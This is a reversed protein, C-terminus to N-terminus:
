AQTWPLQWFKSRVRGPVTCTLYKNLLSHLLTMTGPGDVEVVYVVMDASGNSGSGYRPTALAFSTSRGSSHGCLQPTSFQTATQAVGETSMQM